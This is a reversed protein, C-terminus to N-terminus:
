ETEGPEDPEQPQGARGWASWPQQEPPPTPSARRRPLGAPHWGPDGQGPQAGGPPWIAGPGQGGGPEGAPPREWVAPQPGTSPQDWAPPRRDQASQMDAIQRRLMEIEVDRETVTQAVLNLAEDTSRKDYGWLAVPPRLLAVDAATEIDADVPRVDAAFSAMEGGRGMAVVIMGVLMAVAVVVLVVAV